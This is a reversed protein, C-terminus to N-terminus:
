RVAFDISSPRWDSRILAYKLIGSCIMMGSM